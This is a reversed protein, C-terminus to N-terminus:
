VGGEQPGPAWSGEPGTTVDRVTRGPRASRPPAPPAAELRQKLALMTQRSNARIVEVVRPVVDADSAPEIGISRLFRMAEPPDVEVTHESEVNAGMEVGVVHWWGWHRRLLAPPRPQFFFISSGQRVRVTRFADRHGRTEVHMTLIQIEDDDFHMEISRVHPAVAPWDELRWFADLVKGVPADVAVTFRFRETSDNM